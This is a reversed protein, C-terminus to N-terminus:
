QGAAEALGGFRRQRRAFAALARRLQVAGFDPWLVRTFVLEAYAAEWLLFDSLRREGGARILLDVPGADRELASAMLRRM